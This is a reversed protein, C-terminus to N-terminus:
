DAEENDPPSVPQHSGSCNAGHDQHGVFYEPGTFRHDVDGVVKTRYTWLKKACVPCTKMEDIM